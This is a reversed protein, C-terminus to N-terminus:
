PSFTYADDLIEQNNLTKSATVSLLSPSPTSSVSSSSAFTQSQSPTPSFTPSTKPEFTTRPNPPTQVDIEDFFVYADDM